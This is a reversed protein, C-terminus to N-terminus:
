PEIPPAIVRERAAAEAAIASAIRRAAPRLRGGATRLGALAGYDSSPAIIAGRMARHTSGWALIRWLTREQSKEGHISPWGSARLVWHERPTSADRMWRDAAQLQADLTAGGRVGATIAFGIADVPSAPAAGWAYIASDRPTFAALPLLVRTRPRIRHSASAASSLYREWEVVSRRRPAYARPQAPVLYEPRLRRLLLDIEKMRAATWKEDSISDRPLEDPVALTLVLLAGARRVEEVSSAISDLLMETVSGPAIAIAIASAQIERALAVDNTVSIDPPGLGSVVPFLSLGIAFDGAPREQLRDRSFEAYSGIARTAPPIALLILATWGAALVTTATRLVSEVGRRRPPLAPALLPVYLFLPLPTAISSAGIEMALAQAASIALLPEPVRQGMLVIWRVTAVALLLLDYITIIAGLPRPVLGKVTAYIAQGCILMAALPWLWSVAILARGTIISSSVAVVLIAPALLLGGFGSLAMLIPSADRRRVIRSAISINWIILLASVVLHVAALAAAPRAIIM